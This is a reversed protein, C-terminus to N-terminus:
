GAERRDGGAICKGARESLVAARPAPTRILIPLEAATGRGVSAGHVHHGLPRATEDRNRDSATMAKHRDVRATIM